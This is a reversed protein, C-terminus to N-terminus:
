FLVILDNGGGVFVADGHDEGAFAVEFMSITQILPLYFLGAPHRAKQNVINNTIEFGSSQPAQRGYRNKGM